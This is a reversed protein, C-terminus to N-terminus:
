LQSQSRASPKPLGPLWQYPVPEQAAAMGATLFVMEAGEMISALERYSEEAATEGVV